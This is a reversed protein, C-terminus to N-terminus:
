GGRGLVGLHLFGGLAVPQRHPWDQYGLGACSAGSPLSCHLVTFVSRHHAAGVSLGM